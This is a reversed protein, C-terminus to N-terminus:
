MGCRCPSGSIIVAAHDGEDHVEASLQSFKSFAKVRQARARDRVLVTFEIDEEAHERFLDRLELLLEREGHSRGDIRPLPTMM